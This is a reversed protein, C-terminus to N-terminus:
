SSEPITVTGASSCTDERSTVAVADPRLVACDSCRSGQHAELPPAPRAEFREAAVIIMLLCRHQTSILFAICLAKAVVGQNGGTGADQPIHFEGTAQMNLPFHFSVNTGAI